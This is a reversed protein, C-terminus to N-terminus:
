LHNELIQLYIMRNLRRNYICWAKRLIAPAIM